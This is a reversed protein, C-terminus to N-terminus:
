CARHSCSRTLRSVVCGTSTKPHRPTTPLIAGRGKGETRNATELSSLVQQADSPEACLVIINKESM